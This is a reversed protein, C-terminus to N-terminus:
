QDNEFSMMATVTNITFLPMYRMMPNWSCPMHWGYIYALKDSKTTTPQTHWVNFCTVVILGHISCGGRWFLGAPVQWAVFHAM